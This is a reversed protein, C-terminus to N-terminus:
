GGFATTEWILVQTEGRANQAPWIEVTTGRYDQDDAQRYVDTEAGQGGALNILNTCRPTAQTGCYSWGRRPLEERYFTRADAVSIPVILTTKKAVGGLLESSVVQAQPPLPLERNRDWNWWVALAIVAVVLVTFGWWGLWAVISRM